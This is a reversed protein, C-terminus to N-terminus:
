RLLRTTKKLAYLVAFLLLSGFFTYSWPWAACLWSKLEMKGFHVDATLKTIFFALCLATFGYFERRLVKKMSFPNRPTQWGSLRPIFAPTELAWRRYSDGFKEILFREETAIIREMYLWYSLTVLLPFWWVMLSLSVGLLMLYNGLYLPNRVLSYIGTSNLSNALQKKTNRGSTAAQSYGVTVARIVLGSISVLFSFLAWLNTAAPGIKAAIAPTERLALYGPLIFLLPIFSRYRFLTHGQKVMEDNLPTKM